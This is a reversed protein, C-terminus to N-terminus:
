HFFVPSFRRNGADLPGAKFAATRPCPCGGKSTAPAPRPKPPPTVSKEVWNPGRRDLSYSLAYQPKMMLYNSPNAPDPTARSPNGQAM